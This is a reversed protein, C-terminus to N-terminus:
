LIAECEVTLPMFLTNGLSKSAFLICAQLDELSLGLYEAFIEQNTAGHAILNIIFEITLLTGLVMRPEFTIKACSSGEAFFCWRSSELLRNIKIPASAEKNLM